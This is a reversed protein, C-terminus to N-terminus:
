EANKKMCKEVIDMTISPLIFTHSYRRDNRRLIHRHIWEMRRRNRIRQARLGSRITQSQRRRRRLSPIPLPLRYTPM